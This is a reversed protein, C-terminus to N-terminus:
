RVRYLAAAGVLMLAAAFGFAHVPSLFTWLLGVGWSSLFDGLGNVTGLIGYATGRVSKDPVLDATMAGELAEEIAIFVGAGAFLVMLWALSTTGTLFARAFELVVIGGLVYGLLLLGRRGWRDSLAGVPFATVAQVGNRWAYLLAAIRAAELPEHTSLLLQTAALILLTHSFDGAGFIGVGVLFRRFEQPLEAVTALFKRGVPATHVQERVLLAFALGSGLGPLVALWFVLRYASTPDDGAWPQLMPLLAAALLPGVIAGLTDAARHLGFAKGRHEDPVSEALMANRLPGRIGKGFWAVLKGLFIMPWAVALAFTIAMVGTLAYGVTVFPKRRGIKDGWWGSGLKVFSSLANASGEILGLVDPKAGLTTLFSPMLSTITEYCADALFSTLGMGVVNRNLWTGANTGPDSVVAVVDANPLGDSM